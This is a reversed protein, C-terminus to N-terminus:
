IFLLCDRGSVSGEYKEKGERGRKRRGEEGRGERGRLLLVGGGGIAAIPGPPTSLSGLPDPCLGAALCM